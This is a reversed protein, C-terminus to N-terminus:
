SLFEPVICEWTDLLVTTHIFLPPTPLEWIKTLPVYRSRFTRNVKPLM